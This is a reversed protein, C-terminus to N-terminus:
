TVEMADGTVAPAAAVTEPEWLLVVPALVLGPMPPELELNVAVPEADTVDATLDTVALAALVAGIAEAVKGADAAVTGVVEIAVEVAASAPM